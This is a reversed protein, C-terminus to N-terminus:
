SAVTCCSNKFCRRLWRERDTNPRTLNDRNINVQEIRVARKQEYPEGLVAAAGCRQDPDARFASDEDIAVNALL